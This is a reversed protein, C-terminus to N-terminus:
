TTSDGLLGLREGASKNEDLLAEFVVELIKEGDFNHLITIESGVVAKYLVVDESLDGADNAIPHLVLLGAENSMKYGADRGITVKSGSKTGAPIAVKINDLTHEALPVKATIAEGILAKDYKTNGYRDVTLDYYEPTYVVEVGGKSHGLDVSKFVVSCVGLKVKTVDSM